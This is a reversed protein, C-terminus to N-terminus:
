NYCSFLNYYIFKPELKSNKARAGIKARGSHLFLEENTCSRKSRLSVHLRLICILHHFKVSLVDADLTEGSDSNLISDSASFETQTEKYFDLVPSRIWIFHDITSIYFDLRDWTQCQSFLNYQPLQRCFLRGNDRVISCM